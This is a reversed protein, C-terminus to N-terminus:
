TNCLTQITKTKVICTVFLNRSLVFARQLPEPRVLFIKRPRGRIARVEEKNFSLWAAPFTGKHFVELAAEHFPFWSYLLNHRTEVVAVPFPSLLGIMGIHQPRNEVIDKVLILLKEEVKLWM